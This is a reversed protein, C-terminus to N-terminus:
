LTEHIRVLFTWVDALEVAVIRILVSATAVLAVVEIVAAFHKRNMSPAHSTAGRVAFGCAGCIVCYRRRAKRSFAAQV